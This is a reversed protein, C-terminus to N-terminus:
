VLFSYTEYILENVKNKLLFYAQHRGIKKILKDLEIEYEKSTHRLFNISIRKMFDEDVDNNACNMYNGLENQLQNYHKKAAKYLKEKNEFKRLTITLNDIYNLLKQRKKDASIISSNRRKEIKEFEQKFEETNEINIVKEILYLKCKSKRNNLNDKLLDPEKLFKFILSDSWHRENKLNTFTIYEDKCAPTIDKLFLELLQQNEDNDM